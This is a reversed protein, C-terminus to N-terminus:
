LGPLAPQLEMVPDIKKRSQYPRPARERSGDGERVLLGQRHLEAAKAARNTARELLRVTWIRRGAEREAAYGTAWEEADRDWYRTEHEVSEWLRNGGGGSDYNHWHLVESLDHDHAVTIGGIVLTDEGAALAFAPVAERIAAHWEINGMSGGNDHLLALAVDRIAKSWVCRYCPEASGLEGQRTCTPCWNRDPLTATVPIDPWDIRNLADVARQYDDGWPCCMGPGPDCYGKAEITDERAHTRDGPVAHCEENPCAGYGRTFGFMGPHDWSGHEGGRQFDGARVKWRAGCVLCACRYVPREPSDPPLVGAM